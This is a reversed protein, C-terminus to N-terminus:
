AKICLKKIKIIFCKTKAQRVKKFDKISLRVASLGLTEKRNLCFVMKAQELGM